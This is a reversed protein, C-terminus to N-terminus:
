VGRDLWWRLLVHAVAHKPPAVFARGEEGAAVADMAEAVEERTFWRADELETADITIESDDTV